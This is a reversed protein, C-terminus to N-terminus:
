INGNENGRNCTSKLYEALKLNEFAEHAKVHTSQKIMILNDANNNRCNGDRHHIIMGKPICLMQNALCWNYHSEKIRKHNHRIYIQGRHFTRGGIWNFHSTGRKVVKSILNAKSRTRIQNNNLRLYKRITTSCVNFKKSIITSSEGEKYLNTITQIDEKSLKSVM